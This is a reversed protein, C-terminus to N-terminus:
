AANALADLVKEARRAYQQLLEVESGGAGNALAAAALKNQSDAMNRLTRIMSILEGDGDSLNKVVADMLGDNM